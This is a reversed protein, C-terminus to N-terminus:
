PVLPEPSLSKRGNIRGREDEATRQLRGLDHLCKPSPRNQSGCTLTTETMSLLRFAFSKIAAEADTRFSSQCPVVSEDM